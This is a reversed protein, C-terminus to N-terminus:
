RRRNFRAAIRGLLGPQRAPLPAPGGADVERGELIARPNEEVFRRAAEPGVLRAAASVADSLAPPRHRVDHADSALVHVLNRKLMRHSFEQAKSGFKGAVSAGTVQTLAGLRVSAEVRDFDELYYAVREPHAMVPTLGQLRLQFITEDVHIPV